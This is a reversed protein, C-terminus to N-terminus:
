RKAPKIWMRDRALDFTIQWHVLVPVGVVGDRVMDRVIARTEQSVDRGKGSLTLRYPQAKEAKADAGAEAAMATPLLVPADGGTDLELWLDGKDVKSRAYVAVGRASNGYRSVRIPIEVADAVRSALSKPTEFQLTGARMDLTFVQGDLADLALSGDVPDDGKRLLPMLDIVGVTVPATKRGDPFGVTVNECRPMDLREGTLRFGSLQGWPTCGIRQAFGPSVLTVGGGTDLLFKGRQGGVVVEISRRRGMYDGLSIVPAAKTAPGSAPQAAASPFSLTVGAALAVAAILSRLNPSM